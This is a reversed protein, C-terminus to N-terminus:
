RRAILHCRDSTLRDPDTLLEYPSDESFAVSLAFGAAHFRRAVDLNTGGFSGCVEDGHLELYWLPVAEIARDASRLALVEAGEIDMYILDPTGHERLLGDLTVAPVTRLGALSAADLIVNGNSKAVAQATGPRDLVAAHLARMGAEGNLRFNTACAAANIQDMEVALVDGQPVLKRKLLLALLGQHAGINFVRADAPMGAAALAAFESREAAPWDRGYWDITLEDVRLLTLPEGLYRHRICAPGSPAAADAAPHSAPEALGEAPTRLFSPM